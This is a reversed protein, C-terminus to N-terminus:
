SPDCRNWRGGERYEGVHRIEDVFRGHVYSSASTSTPARREPALSVRRASTGEPTVTALAAVHDQLDRRIHVVQRPELIVRMLVSGVPLRPSRVRLVARGALVEDKSNRVASHNALLSSGDGVEDTHAGTDNHSSSAAAPAAVRRKSGPAIRGRVCCLRSLRSLLM